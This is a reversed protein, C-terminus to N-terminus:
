PAANARSSIKGSTPSSWRFQDDPEARRDLIGSSALEGLVLHLMKGIPNDTWLLHNTELWSQRDFLGLARGVHFGAHDWDTWERLTMSLEVKRSPCGGATCEADVDGQHEFEYHFCVYHMREFISFDSTDAPQGCRRCRNQTEDIM